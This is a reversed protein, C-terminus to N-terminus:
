MIRHMGVNGIKGMSPEFVSIQGSVEKRFVRSNSLATHHRADSTSSSQNMGKMAIGQECMSHTKLTLSVQQQTCAVM